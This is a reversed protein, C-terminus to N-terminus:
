KKVRFVYTAPEPTVYILEFQDPIYPRIAPILYRQTTGSIQDVLIYDAQSASHLVSDRNSTFPYCYSKREATLCFLTPKRSLVVANRPTHEKVWNAAEFFTRWAPDYGALKDGRYYSNLMTVNEGIAPILLVASSLIMLTCVPILLLLTNKKLGRVWLAELGLLLYYM